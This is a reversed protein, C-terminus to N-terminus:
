ITVTAVGMSAALCGSKLGMYITKPQKSPDAKLHRSTPTPAEKSPVIM